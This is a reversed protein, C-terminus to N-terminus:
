KCFKHLIHFKRTMSSARTGSVVILSFLAFDLDSSVVLVCFLNRGQRNGGFFASNPFLSPLLEFLLISGPPASTQASLRVFVLGAPSRGSVSSVPFDRAATSELVWGIADRAAPVLALFLSGRCCAVPVSRRAGVASPYCCSSVGLGSRCVVSWSLFRCAESASFHFRAARLLDLDLRPRHVPRLFWALQAVVGARLV